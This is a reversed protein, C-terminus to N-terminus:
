SQDGFLHLRNIVVKEAQHILDYIKVRTEYSTNGNLDRVAAICEHHCQHLLFMGGQHGADTMCRILAELAPSGASLDMLEPKLSRIVETAQSYHTLQPAFEYM